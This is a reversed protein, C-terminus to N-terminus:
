IISEKKPYSYFTEDAAIAAVGSGCIKSRTRQRSVWGVPSRCIINWRIGVIASCSCPIKDLRWGERWRCWLEQEDKKNPERQSGCEDITLELDIRPPDDDDLYVVDCIGFHDM